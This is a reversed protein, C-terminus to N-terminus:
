RKLKEALLKAIKNIDDREVYLKFKLPYGNKDVTVSGIKQEDVRADYGEQSLLDCAAVAQEKSSFYRICRPERMANSNYPLIISMTFISSSM